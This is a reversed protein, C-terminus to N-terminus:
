RSELDVLLDEEYKALTCINRLRKIPLQRNRVMLVTERWLLPGYVVGVEFRKDVKL